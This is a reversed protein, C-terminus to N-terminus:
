EAKSFYFLTRWQHGQLFEELEEKTFPIFEVTGELDIETELPQEDHESKLMAVSEFPDVGEQTSLTIHPTGYTDPLGHTAVRVAEVRQNHAYAFISAIAAKGTYYKVAEEPAGYVLTVHDCYIDQYKAPYLRQLLETSEISLQLSLIGLNSNKTVKDMYKM